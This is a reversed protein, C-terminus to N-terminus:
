DDIFHANIRDADKGGWDELFEAIEGQRLAQADAEPSDPAPSLPCGTSILFGFALFMLSRRNM